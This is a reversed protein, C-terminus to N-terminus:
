GAPEKEQDATAAIDPDSVVAQDLLHPKCPSIGFLTGGAERRITEASLLCPTSSADVKYMKMYEHSFDKDDMSRRHGADDPPAGTLEPAAVVPISRYNGRMHPGNNCYLRQDRPQQLVPLSGVIDGVPSEVPDDPRSSTMTVYGLDESRPRPAALPDIGHVGESEVEERLGDDSGYNSDDSRKEKRGGVSTERTLARSTARDWNVSDASPQPQATEADWKEREVSAAGHRVIDPFPSPLCCAAEATRIIAKANTPSTVTSDLGEFADANQRILHGNSLTSSATQEPSAVDSGFVSEFSEEQSSKRVRALSASAGGNESGGNVNRGNEQGCSACVPASYPPTMWMYYSKVDYLGAAQTFRKYLTKRAAEVVDKQTHYDAFFAALEHFGAAEALDHPTAGDVNGMRQLLEVGPCDVMNACLDKLGYAAALHLLSPYKRTTERPPGSSSSSSSSLRLARDFPEYPQNQRFLKCLHRDLTANDSVDLGLADALATLPNTTSEILRSLAESLSDVTLYEAALVSAGATVDVVSALRRGPACHAPIECVLTYANRYQCPFALSEAASDARSNPEFFDNSADNGSFDDTQIVPTLRLQYSHSDFLRLDKFLLCVTSASDASVYDPILQLSSAGRREGDGAVGEDGNLSRTATFGPAFNIYDAFPFSSSSSHSSRHRRPPRPCPIDHHTAPHDSHHAIATAHPTGSQSGHHVSNPTSANSSHPPSLITSSLRPVLSSSSASPQDGVPSPDSDCANLRRRPISELHLDNSPM